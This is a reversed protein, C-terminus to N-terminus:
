LKLCYEDELKSSFDVKGKASLLTSPFSKSSLKAQRMCSIADRLAFKDSTFCAQSPDSGCCSTIFSFSLPECDPLLAITQSLPNFRKALFDLVVLPVHVGLLDRDDNLSQTPECLHKTLWATISAMPKAPPSQTKHSEVFHSKCHLTLRELFKMDRSLYSTKRKHQEGEDICARTSLFM